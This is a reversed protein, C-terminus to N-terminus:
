IDLKECAAALLDVGVSEWPSQISMKNMLCQKNPTWPHSICHYLIYPQTKSFTQRTHLNAQSQCIIHYTWSKVFMAYLDVRVLEWPCQICMGEML